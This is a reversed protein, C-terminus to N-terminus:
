TLDKYYFGWNHQLGHGILRQMKKNYQPQTIRVFNSRFPCFPDVNRQSIYFSYSFKQFLYHYTKIINFGKRLCKSIPVEM